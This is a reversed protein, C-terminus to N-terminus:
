MRRNILSIHSALNGRIVPPLAAKLDGVSADHEDGFYIQAKERLVKLRDKDLKIEM